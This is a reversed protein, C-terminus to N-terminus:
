FLLIPYDIKDIFKISISKKGTAETEVIFEILGSVEQELFVYTVKATFEKRYYIFNEKREISSFEKIIM